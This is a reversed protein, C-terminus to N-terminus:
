RTSGLCTQKGEIGWIGEIIAKFAQLALNCMKLVPGAYLLLVHENQRQTWMELLFRASCEGGSGLCAQKGELGWIGEIIAKFAQSALNCMKLVPGAYFLM